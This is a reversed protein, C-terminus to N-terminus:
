GIRRPSLLKFIFYNEPYELPVSAFLVFIIEIACFAHASASAFTLFLPGTVGHNGNVSLRPKSLSIFLLMRM